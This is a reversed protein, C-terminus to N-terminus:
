SSPDPDWTDAERCTHTVMISYNLPGRTSAGERRDRCVSELTFLFTGPRNLATKNSQTNCLPFQWTAQLTYNFKSGNQNLINLGLEIPNWESFGDDDQVINAWLSTKQATLLPLLVKRATAKGLHSCTWCLQVRRKHGWFWLWGGGELGWVAKECGVGGERPSNRGRSSENYSSSLFVAVRSNVIIKSNGNFIHVKWVNARFGFYSFLAVVANICVWWLVSAQLWQVRVLLKKTNLYLCNLNEVCEYVDVWLMLVCEYFCICM